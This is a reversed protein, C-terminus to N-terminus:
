STSARAKPLSGAAISGRSHATPSNPRSLGQLRGRKRARLPVRDLLRILELPSFPKRLVADPGADEVEEATTEKGTLLVVLPAGYGPNQKLERCFTLGDMGPLGVDLIVVAPSWFRAVEAAKEAAVAEEVAFEDAALTTRLLLRLGADDDVVLIRAPAGAGPCARATSGAAQIRRARSRGRCGVRRYGALPPPPRACDPTVM